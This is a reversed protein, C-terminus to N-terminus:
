PAVPDYDIKARGKASKGVASAKGDLKSSTKARGKGAARKGGHHNSETENGQANDSATDASKPTEGVQASAPETKPAEKPKATPSNEPSGNGTARHFLVFLGAGLMPLLLLLLLLVWRKRTGPLSEPKAAQATDKGDEAKARAPDAAQPEGAETSSAAAAAVDKVTVQAANPVGASTAASVKADASAAVGGALANARVSRPLAALRSVSHEVDPPSVENVRALLSPPPTVSDIWHPEVSLLMALAEVQERVTAFRTPLERSCARFFWADFAKSLSPVVESPAPMHGLAIRSLLMGLSPVKWYNDGVMMDYAIMGIAWVDTGPCIEERNGLVQEPAMYLPTGLLTNDQTLRLEGSELRTKFMAIGFDLVKVMLGFEESRHLFLNEPKLDRHIIGLAHAKDLARAAQGLIFIISESDLPRKDALLKEVDAGDLLEMVLYMAGDLEPATDADTIRTVNDSRLIASAKMERKFREVAELQDSVDKRLVKMALREDTNVHRVLYVTGMGGSGLQRIMEYRGAVIKPSVTIEVTDM